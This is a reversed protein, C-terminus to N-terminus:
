NNLFMQFIQHFFFVLSSRYTCKLCYDLLVYIFEYMANFYKSHCSEFKMNILLQDVTTLHQLYQAVGDSIQPILAMEASYSSSM